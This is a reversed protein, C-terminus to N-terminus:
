CIQVIQKKVKYRHLGQLLAKESLKTYNRLDDFTFTYCGREQLKVLFDEWNVTSNEMVSMTQFQLGKHFDYLNAFIFKIKSNVLCKSM